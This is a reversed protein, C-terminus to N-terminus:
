AHGPQIHPLIIHIPDVEYVEETAHCVPLDLPIGGTVVRKLLTGPVCCRQFLWLRWSEPAIELRVKPNVEKADIHLLPEAAGILRLTLETSSGRTRRRGWSYASVERTTARTM